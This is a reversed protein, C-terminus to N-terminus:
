KFYVFKKFIDQQLIQAEAALQSAHVELALEAAVKEQEQRESSLRRIQEQIQADAQNSQETIHQISQTTEQFHQNQQDQLHQDQLDRSVQQNELNQVPIVNEPMQASIEQQLQDQNILEQDAISQDMDGNNVNDCRIMNERYGNENKEDGDNVDMHNLDGHNGDGHSLLGEEDKMGEDSMGIKSENLEVGALGTEILVSTCEKRAVMDTRMKKAYSVDEVNLCEGEVWDFLDNIKENLCGNKDSNEEGLLHEYESEIMFFEPMSKKQRKSAGAIKESGSTLESVKNQVTTWDVLDDFALLFNKLVEVVWLLMRKDLLKRALIHAHVINVAICTIRESVPNNSYDENDLKSDDLEEEFNLVKENQIQKLDAM